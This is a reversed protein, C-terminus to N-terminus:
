WRIAWANQKISEALQKGLLIVHDEGPKYIRGKVIKLKDFMVSHPEWGQLLLTNITKDGERWYVVEVLNPSVTKVGPVEAIQTKFSEDLRSTQPDPKSAESVIIDFGRETMSKLWTREFSDSVGLLAVTTGVAVAFGICTLGSRFKRRLLNKLLLTSFWM